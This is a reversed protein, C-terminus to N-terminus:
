IDRLGTQERVWENTKCDRRTVGIMAREIARQTTQMKSQMRKNLVWTQNGYTMAPQICQNYLKRKLYMPMKSKLIDRYQSFPGWGASTRRKVENMNNNALTILQGLYVYEDVTEIEELGLHITERTANGNFMVKTKKMNIKM